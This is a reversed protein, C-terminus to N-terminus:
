LDAVGPGSNPGPRRSVGREEQCQRCLWHAGGGPEQAREAHQLWGFLSNEHCASAGRFYREQINEPLAAFALKACTLPEQHAPVHGDRFEDALVLDAEAWIAVMPQYGRGGEYHARAAEKHREIITAEQDVTARRLPQQQEAYLQAIRRVVGAQVSQLGEVPASSPMIFSKHVERQPRGLIVINLIKQM